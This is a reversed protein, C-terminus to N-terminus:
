PTKGIVTEFAHTIVVAGSAVPDDGFGEPQGAVCSIDLWRCADDVAVPVHGWRSSVLHTLDNTRFAGRVDAVPVAKAAFTKSLFTDVQDVVPVSNVAYARTAGGALWDGLFPDYYNM